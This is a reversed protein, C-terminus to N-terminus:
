PPGMEILGLAKRVICLGYFVWGQKELRILGERSLTSAMEMEM